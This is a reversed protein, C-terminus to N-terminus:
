EDAEKKERELVVTTIDKACRLIVWKTGIIGLFTKTGCEISLITEYGAEYAMAMAAELSNAEFMGECAPKHAPKGRGDPAQSVPTSQLVEVENYFAQIHYSSVCGSLALLAATLILASKISQM